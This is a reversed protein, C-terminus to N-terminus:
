AISACSASISAISRARKFAIAGVALRAIAVFGIALFALAAAAVARLGRDVRTPAPECRNGYGVLLPICRGQRLALGAAEAMM